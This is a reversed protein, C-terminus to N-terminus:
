ASSDGAVCWGQGIRVGYPSKYKHYELGLKATGEAGGSPRYWEIVVLARMLDGNESANPLNKANFALQMFSFPAAADEYATASQKGSSAVTEWVQPSVGPSAQIKFQWSVRRHERKDSNRDAAFVQPPQVKM